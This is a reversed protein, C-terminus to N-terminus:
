RVRKVESELRLHRNDIVLMKHGLPGGSLGTVTGLQESDGRTQGPIHTTSYRVQAGVAVGGSLATSKSQPPKKHTAMPQSASDTKKSSRKM